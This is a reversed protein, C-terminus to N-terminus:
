NRKKDLNFSCRYEGYENGDGGAEEVGGGDGGGVTVGEGRRMAGGDVKDGSPKSYSGEDKTVASRRCLLRVASWLLVSDVGAVVVSPIGSGGDRVKRAWDPRLIIADGFLRGDVSYHKAAILFGFVFFRFRLVPTKM